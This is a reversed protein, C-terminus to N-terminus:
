PTFTLFLFLEVICILLCLHDLSPQLSRSLFLAGGCNLVRAQSSCMGVTSLACQCKGSMPPPPSIGFLSRMASLSDNNMLGSSFGLAVGHGRATCSLCVYWAPLRAPMWHTAGAAKRGTVQSCIHSIDRQRVLILWVKELIGDKSGVRRRDTM